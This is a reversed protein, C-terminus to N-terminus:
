QQLDGVKITTTASLHQKYRSIIAMAAFDLQLVSLEQPMVSDSFAGHVHLM